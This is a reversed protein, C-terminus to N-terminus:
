GDDIRVEFAAANGQDDLADSLASAKQVRKIGAILKCIHNTRETVRCGDVAETRDRANASSHPGGFHQGDGPRCLFRAVLNNRYDAGSRVTEQNEFVLHAFGAVLEVH